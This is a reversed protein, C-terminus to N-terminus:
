MNSYAAAASDRPSSTIMAAAPPAACRGPITAAFVSTGARQGDALRARGVGRDEGSLDDACM